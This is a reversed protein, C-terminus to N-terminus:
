CDYILCEKESPYMDCYTEWFNRKEPQEKLNALAAEDLTGDRLSNELAIMADM